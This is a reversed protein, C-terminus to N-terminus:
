NSAKHRLHRATRTAPSCCAGIELFQRLLNLAIQPGRHRLPPLLIGSYFLQLQRHHTANHVPGALRLMHIQPDAQRPCEFFGLSRHVHIPLEVRGQSAVRNHRLEFLNQVFVDLTVVPLSRLILLQHSRVLDEAELRENPFEPHACANASMKKQLSHAYASEEGSIHTTILPKSSTRSNHGTTANPAERLAQTCTSWAAFATLLSTHM